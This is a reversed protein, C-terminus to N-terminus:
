KKWVVMLYKYVDTLNRQPKEEGPRITEAREAERCLECAGLGEADENGQAPSWYM